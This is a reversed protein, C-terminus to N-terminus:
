LRPITVNQHTWQDGKDLQLFNQQKYCHFNLFRYPNQISMTHLPLQKMEPKELAIPTFIM